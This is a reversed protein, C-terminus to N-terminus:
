ISVLVKYVTGGVDVYLSRTTDLGVAATVLSGLKWLGATAGAPAGTQLTTTTAVAGTFDGLVGYVNSWRRNSLGLTFGNDTNPYISTDAVVLTSTGNVQITTTRGTAANLLLDGGGPGNIQTITQIGTFTNAADTRAITASTTPFTMTTGDTGDLTLTKSFTLTKGAVGTLTYTGATFTNGNLSTATAVGLTPTTFSPSELFAFTKRAAGTTITGYYADTLFEVVGAVPATLLSGSQFQLPKNTTSGASLLVPKAHTLLTSTWTSGDPMTVTGTFTPSILASSPPPQYIEM